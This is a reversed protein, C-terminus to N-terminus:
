TEEKTTSERDYLGGSIKLMATKVEQLVRSCEEAGSGHGSVSYGQRILVALERLEGILQSQVTTRTRRGLSTVRLFEDVTLGSDHAKSKITEAEEDTCRTKLVVARKRNEKNM